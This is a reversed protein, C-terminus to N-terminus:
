PSRKQFHFLIGADAVLLPWQPMQLRLTPNALVDLARKKPKGGIKLFDGPNVHLFSYNGEAFHPIEGISMPTPEHQIISIIYTEGKQKRQIKTQQWLGSTKMKFVESKVQREM